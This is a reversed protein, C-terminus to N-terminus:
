YYSRKDIIMHLQKKWFSGQYFTLSHPSFEWSLYVSTMRVLYKGCQKLNIGFHSIIKGLVCFYKQDLSPIKPGLQKSWQLYISRQWSLFSPKGQLFHETLDKTLYSLFSSKYKNSKENPKIYWHRLLAIGELFHEM